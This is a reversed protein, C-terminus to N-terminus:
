AIFGIRRPVIRKPICLKRAAQEIDCAQITSCLERGAEAGSGLVRRALAPMVGSLLFQKMWRANSFNRDKGAVAEEVVTQLREHAENTLQYGKAELLRLAIQMLEDASYDEFHFHHPFRGKLGQNQQMLREMEDAYGALIVITDPNPQALLTLLSEIVHNGFDKRDEKTTCLTYAEDIFLVNGRARELVENMNKETEGIYAGVLQSREVSIVEGKSLLGLSHFIRGILQAVTSKGTGPNGTFVIHHTGTEEAPLGLKRRQRNFRVLDCTTALSEKLDALGVMRHLSQMAADFEQAIQEEEQSTESGTEQLYANLDIDEQQVVNLQQQYVPRKECLDTQLRQQVRPKIGERAFAVLQKQTWRCLVDEHQEVQRMLEEEAHESLYLLLEQRVIRQLRHTLETATPYGTRFRYAEPFYRAVPVAAFLQEVEEETGCLLIARHGDHNRVAQELLARAERGSPQLLAPLNYLGFAVSSQHLLAETDEETWKACDVQKYSETCFGLLNPLCYALRKSYFAVPSTVVAYDNKMLQGVQHQKCYRNFSNRCAMEILQPKVTALGDFDRVTMWKSQNGADAELQKVLRYETADAALAQQRCAIIKEGENRFRLLLYPESNCSLVAFYDGRPWIRESELRFTLEKKRRKQSGVFLRAQAMLRWEATYCHLRFDSALPLRRDFHCVLKRTGSSTRCFWCQPEDQVFIARKPKPLELEQGSPLVEFACCFHGNLRSFDTLGEYNPCAEPFVLFYRGPRIEEEEMFFALISTESDVFVNEKGIPEAEGERYLYLPMETEKGYFLKENSGIKLRLLEEEREKATLFLCSGNSGDHLILDREGVSLTLSAIELTNGKGTETRPPLQYNQGKYSCTQMETDAATPLGAAEQEELFHQLEEENLTEFNVQNTKNQNM